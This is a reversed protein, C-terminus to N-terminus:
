VFIGLLVRQQKKQSSMNKNASCSDIRGQRDMPRVTYKGVHMTPKKHHEHIPLYVLGM